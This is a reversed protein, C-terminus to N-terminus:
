SRKLWARNPRLALLRRYTGLRPDRRPEVAAQRHSVAVPCEAGPAVSARGDILRHVYLPIIRRMAEPTAMQGEPRPGPRCARQREALAVADSASRTASGTRR